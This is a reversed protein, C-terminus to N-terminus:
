GVHIQEGDLKVLKKAGALINEGQLNLVQEARVDLNGARVQDLGKVTRQSREACLHLRETTAEVLNAILRTHRLSALAERAVAQLRRCVLTVADARLVLEPADTEIRTSSGLGLRGDIELSLGAGQGVSIRTEGPLALHLPAAGRRELVAILFPEDPAAEAVLVRDGIEPQVLCSLARRACVEGLATRVQFLDPESCALVEGDAQMPQRKLRAAMAENLAEM